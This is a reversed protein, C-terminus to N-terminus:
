NLGTRVDDACLTTSRECRFSTSKGLWWYAYLLLMRM